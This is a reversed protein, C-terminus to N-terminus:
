GQVKIKDIANKAEALGVGHKARYLRIASILNGADALNKIKSGQIVENELRMENPLCTFVQVWGEPEQHFEVLAYDFFSEFYAVCRILSSGIQLDRIAIERARAEAEAKSLYEVGDDEYM